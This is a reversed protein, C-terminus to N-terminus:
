GLIGVAFTGDTVQVQGAFNQNLIAHHRMFNLIHIIYPIIPVAWPIHNSWPLQVARAVGIM